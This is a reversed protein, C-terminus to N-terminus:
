KTFVYYSVNGKRILDNAQFGNDFLRQFVKGSQLRWKRALEFDARKIAQFDAPIASFYVQENAIGLKELQSSPVPEQDDGMDLIIKKADLTFAPLRKERTLDWKIQFRDTPLGQNFEDNMEGYHNAQFIAGTAGLKHLNVYANRSELPDYTWTIMTYGFKKAIEAQKLKLQEGIGSMRYDPLMGMMHSCLYPAAGDFGAFSYLFGVMDAGDFAGLVIGGHHLATFTQHVPIPDMHWVESEVAQMTKLDAMTRLERIQLTHM